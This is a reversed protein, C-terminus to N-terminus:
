IKLTCRYAHFGPSLLGVKSRPERKDSNLGSTCLVHNSLLSGSSPRQPGFEGTTSRARIRSKAFMTVCTFGPGNQWLSASESIVHSTISFQNVFFFFNGHHLKKQCLYMFRPVFSYTWGFCMDTDCVPQDTGLTIDDMISPAERGHRM